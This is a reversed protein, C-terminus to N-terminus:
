WYNTVSFSSLSGETPLESEAFFIGVTYINGEKPTLTFTFANAM